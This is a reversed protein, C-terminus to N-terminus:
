RGIGSPFPRETLQPFGKGAWLIAVFALVFALFVMLVFRPSATM